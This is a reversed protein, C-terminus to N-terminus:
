HGGCVLILAHCLFIWQTDGISCRGIVLWSQIMLYLVSKHNGWSLYELDHPPTRLKVNKFNLYIRAYLSRKEPCIIIFSRLSIGTCWAWHTLCFTSCIDFTVTLTVLFIFVVTQAMFKSGSITSVEPQNWFTGSVTGAYRSM